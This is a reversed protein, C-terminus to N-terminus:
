SVFVGGGGGTGVVDFEFAIDYGAIATTKYQFIALGVGERLVIDCKQGLSSFTPQNLGGLASINAGAGMAGQLSQSRRFPRTITGGIGHGQEAVVANKQCVIGPPLVINTDLTVPTIIEGTETEIASITEMTFIPINADGVPSITVKLVQLVVGSGAGNTVAFVMTQSSLTIGASYMWTNVGDSVVVQLNWKVPRVLDQSYLAFAEGEALTIPQVQTCAYDLFAGSKRPGQGNWYLLPQGNGLQWNTDFYTKQLEGTVAVGGPYLLGQVQAPPAAVATDSMIPALAEGETVAGSRVAQLTSPSANSLADWLIASFTHPLVDVRRVRVIKGSGTQNFLALASPRYQSPNSTDTYTSYAIAAAQWDDHARLIFM